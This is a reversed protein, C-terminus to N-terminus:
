CLDRVRKEIRKFIADARAFDNAGYHRMRYRANFSFDLLDAYDNFIPTLMPNRRLEAKMEDHDRTSFNFEILYGSVYHLAAYFLATLAWGTHTADRKPLNRAFDRNREAKALHDNRTM